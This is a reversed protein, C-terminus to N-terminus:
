KEIGRRAAVGKDFYHKIASMETVLDAKEIVEPPADRGTLVLEVSDPKLDMLALLDRLPVLGFHVAVNVEDLIVVDYAKEIIVTKSLNLAKQAMQYDIPRPKGRIIGRPGMPHISLHPALLDAAQVEGTRKDHKMFQVM